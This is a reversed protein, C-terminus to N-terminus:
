CRPAAAEAARHVDIEVHRRAAGDAPHDEDRRRGMAQEVLGREAGHAAQPAHRERRAQPRPGQAHPQGEDEVQASPGRPNRPLLRAMASTTRSGSPLTVSYVSTATAPSVTSRKSVSTKPSCQAATEAPGTVSPAAYSIRKVAAGFSEM